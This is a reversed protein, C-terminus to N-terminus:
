PGRCLGTVAQCNHKVHIEQQVPLNDEEAQQFSAQEEQEEEQDVDGKCRPFSPCVVPKMSSSMPIPEDQGYVALTEAAAEFLEM